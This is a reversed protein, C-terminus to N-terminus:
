QACLALGGRVSRRHSLLLPLRVPEQCALLSQALRPVADVELTRAETPSRPMLIRARPSVRALMHQAPLAREMAKNAQEVTHFEVFAYNGEPATWVSLIPDPADAAVMQKQRM